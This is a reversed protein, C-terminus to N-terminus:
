INITKVLCCVWDQRPACCMSHCLRMAMSLSESSRGRGTCKVRKEREQSRESERAGPYPLFSTKREAKGERHREGERQLMDNRDRGREMCVVVGMMGREVTDDPATRKQPTEDKEYM